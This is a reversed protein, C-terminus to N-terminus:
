SGFAGDSGVKVTWSSVKVDAESGQLNHMICSYLISWEAFSYLRKALISGLHFFHTQIKIILQPLQEANGTKVILDGSALLNAQQKYLKEMLVLAVIVLRSFGFFAGLREPEFGAAQPPSFGTETLWKTAIDHQYGSQAHRLFWDRMAHIGGEQHSRSSYIHVAFHRIAQELFHWMGPVPPDPIVSAGQWGSAYDSCVGDFDLVLIPLTRTPM